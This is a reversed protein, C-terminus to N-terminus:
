RGATRTSGKSRSTGTSLKGDKPSPRASAGPSTPPRKGGAYLEVTWELLQLLVREPLRLGWQPKAGDIGAAHEAAEGWSQFSKLVEGGKVVDVRTLLAATEPVALRALFIRLGGTVKRLQEVDGSQLEDVDVGSESQQAERFEAYADLYEDGMVEAQFQLELDAGIEAVHPETNLAFSKRM